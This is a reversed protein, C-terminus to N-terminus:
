DQWSKRVVGDQFEVYAAGEVRETEDGSFVFILSGESRKVETYSWKWIETGGEVKTRSTPEGLLALVYSQTSGHEVQQLTSSSDYRGSRESHSDVNIICAPFLCAAALAALTSPLIRAFSANM